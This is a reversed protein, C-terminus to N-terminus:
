SFLRVSLAELRNTNTANLSLLLETYESGVVGEEVVPINSTDHFYPRTSAKGVQPDLGPWGESIWNDDFSKRFLRWPIILSLM